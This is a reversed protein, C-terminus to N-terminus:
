YLPPTSTKRQLHGGKPQKAAYMSRDARMILDLPKVGLELPTFGVSVNPTLQAGQYAVELQTMTESIHEAKRSLKDKFMHVLLIAFEDGDVRAVIESRRASALVAKAIATLVIDGALHGHRDNLAKLNDVDIFLLGYGGGYGNSRSCWRNVEDIFYRRNFVPTLTDRVGLQELEAVRAKLALNERELGSRPSTEVITASKTIM